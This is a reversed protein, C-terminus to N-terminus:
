KFEEATQPLTTLKVAQVYKSGVNSGKKTCSTLTSLYFQACVYYNNHLVDRAVCNPKFLNLTPMINRIRDPTYTGKASTAPLSDSLSTLVCYKHQIDISQYMYLSELTMRPWAPSLFTWLWRINWWHLRVRREPDLQNWRLVTHWCLM